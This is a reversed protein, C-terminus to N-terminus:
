KAKEKKFFISYIEFIAICLLFVGFYLKLRNTNLNVSIKAGIIAGIIGFIAVTIGTKWDILKQKINIFTSVIATPIFFM